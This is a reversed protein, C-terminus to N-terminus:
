GGKKKAVNKARMAQEADFKLPKKDKKGHNYLEDFLELFGETTGMNRIAAVKNEAGAILRDPDFYDVHFCAWLANISGKKKLLSSIAILYQYYQAVDNAKKWNRVAFQGRYFRYSINGFSNTGALMAACTTLPIPNHESFDRLEKYEKNGANVYRQLYDNVTWTKSTSNLKAVDVNQEEIVYKVPIGFEQAVAIRHQGDQVYYKGSGNKKVMAPYADLWGHEVMSEALNKTRRDDLNVDRNEKFNEFLDYKKTEQIKQITM